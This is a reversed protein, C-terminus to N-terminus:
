KRFVTRQTFLTNGPQIGADRRAAGPAYEREPFRFVGDDNLIHDYLGIGEAGITSALKAQFLMGAMRILLASATLLATNMLIRQKSSM